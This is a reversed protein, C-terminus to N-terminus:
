GWAWNITDWMGPDDSELVPNIFEAFANEADYFDDYALGLESALRKYERRLTKSLAPMEQPIPHTARIKFTSQTVKALVAGEINELGALLLIDVFDKVRTSGGSMYERTLAHLKEAIQQTIPYCPM